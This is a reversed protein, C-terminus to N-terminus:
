TQHAKNRSSFQGWSEATTAQRSHIRKHKKLTSPDNFAKPCQTCKYPREDTHSREHRVLNSSQSFCKGCTKCVFPREGTHVREHRKLDRLESFAKGCVHCKFRRGGFHFREHSLLKASNSFSKDCVKCAFSSVGAYDCDHKLMDSYRRFTKSCFGCNFMGDKTALSPPYISSDQRFSDDHSHVAEDDLNEHMVLCPSPSSTVASTLVNCGSQNEDLPITQFANMLNSEFATRM